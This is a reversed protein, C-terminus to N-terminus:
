KSRKNWEELAEKKAQAEWVKQDGEGMTQVRVEGSQAGCNECSAFRWRFTSGEYVEVDPCGCFPCPKIESM